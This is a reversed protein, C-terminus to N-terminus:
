IGQAPDTFDDTYSYSKIKNDITSIFVRFTSPNFQCYWNTSGGLSAGNLRAKAKTITGTGDLGLKVVNGSTDEYYVYEGVTGGNISASTILIPTGGTKPMSKIIESSFTSNPYSFTLRSTSPYIDLDDLRYNTTFSTLVQVSSSGNAPVKKIANTYPSASGTISSFYLNGNKDLEMDQTEEDSTLTYLKKLTASAYDYSYISGDAMFIIYKRDYKGHGYDMWGSDPYTYSIISTCNTLGTNTLNCIEFDNPTAYKKRVFVRGDLLMIHIIKPKINIPASLSTMGIKVARVIDDGTNCSLDAGRLTYTIVSQSPTTWNEFKNFDCLSDPTIGTETSLQKKVLTTTDFLWIKGNKFYYGYAAKVGTATGTNPDLADATLIAHKYPEDISGFVGTDFLV